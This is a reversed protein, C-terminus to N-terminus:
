ASEGLAAGCYPCAIWDVNVAKHCSPCSRKLSTGCNPCLIFDPQVPSGCNPCAQSIQAMRPAPQPWNAERYVIRERPSHGGCM